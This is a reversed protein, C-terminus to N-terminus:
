VRQQCSFPRGDSGVAVKSGMILTADDTFSAVYADHEAETDSTRYFSELFSIKEQANPPSLTPTHTIQYTMTNEPKQNPKNNTPKTKSSHHIQTHIPSTPTFITSFILPSIPGISIMTPHSTPVLGLLRSEIVVLHESAIDISSFLTTHM